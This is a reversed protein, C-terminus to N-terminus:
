SLGPMVKASLGVGVNGAAPTHNLQCLYVNVSAQCVLAHRPMVQATLVGQTHTLFSAPHESWHPVEGSCTPM